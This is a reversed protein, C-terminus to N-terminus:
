FDDSTVSLNVGITEAIGIWGGASSRPSRGGAPGEVKSLAPRRRQWGIGTAASYWTPM